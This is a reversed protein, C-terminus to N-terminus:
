EEIQDMLHKIFEMYEEYTWDMSKEGTIAINIIYQLVGRLM